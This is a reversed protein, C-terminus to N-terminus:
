YPKLIARSLSNPLLSFIMEGGDGNEKWWNRGIESKMLDSIKSAGVLENPLTINSSLDADYGLSPWTYYSNQGFLRAAHTHIEKIGLESMNNVQSNFIKTGLGSSRSNKSLVFNDNICIWNDGSKIIRRSMDRIEDGLVSLTIGSNNVHLTVDLGNLKQVNLGFLNMIEQRNLSKNFMQQTLSMVENDSTSTSSFVFDNMI